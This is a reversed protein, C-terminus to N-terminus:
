GKYWPCKTVSKRKKYINYTVSIGAFIYADNRKANGREYGPPFDRIENQFEWTRNALAVSTQGYNKKLVEPEVYTTSVDDIYDTYTKHWTLSINLNWMKNLQIKLGAGMPISMQWLSYKQRNPYEPTGQGETGLPQLEVWQGHLKTRPNFHFYSVGGFIYPSWMRGGLTRNFGIANIEGLIAFDFLNTTFNLNRQVLGPKDNNRDDGTLLGYNVSARLSLFSTFNLRTLVGLSYKFEQPSILVPSLDGEYGTIGAFPGVELVQASSNFCCFISVLVLLHRM